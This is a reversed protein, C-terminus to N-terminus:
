GAVFEFYASKNASKARGRLTPYSAIREDAMGPRLILIFLGLVIWSGPRRADRPPALHLLIGQFGLKM